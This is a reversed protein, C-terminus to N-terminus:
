GELPDMEVNPCGAGTSEGFCSPPLAPFSVMEPHMGIHNGPDTRWAVAVYPLWGPQRNERCRQRSRNSPTGFLIAWTHIPLLISGSGAPQFGQGVGSIEHERM